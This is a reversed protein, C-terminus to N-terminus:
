RKQPSRILMTAPDLRLPDPPPCAPDKASPARLCRLVIEEGQAELVYLASFMAALPSFAQPLGDPGPTEPRHLPVTLWLRFGSRAALAKLDTLIPGLDADMHLGDLIVMAPRFVGQIALDSLREGLRPVAFGDVRFTMILRFPQLADWLGRVAAGRRGGALHQFLEEYWLEVKQVPDQLSVHLVTEKRLMANLALQVLLATKGVGAPALVAGVGGEPLIDQNDGPAVGLPHRQVLIERLM